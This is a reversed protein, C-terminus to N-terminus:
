AIAGLLKMVLLFLAVLAILITLSQGYRVEDLDLEPSILQAYVLSARCEMDLEM